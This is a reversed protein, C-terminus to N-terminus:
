AAHRERYARAKHRNGCVAMSCWRRSRNRAGDYFAWRCEQARCAKLRSWSGDAIAAAAIALLRGLAGDVGRASPELRASGDPEFRLRLDARRAAGSLTVAAEKRVSVGNNAALHARLAERVRRAQDLDARAVRGAHLLGHGRLWSALARPSSLEDVGDEIDRTNVFSRVLELPGPAQQTSM